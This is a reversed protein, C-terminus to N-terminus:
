VSAIPYDEIINLVLTEVLHISEMNSLYVCVHLQKWKLFSTLSLELVTGYVNSSM